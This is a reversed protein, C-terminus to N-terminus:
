GRRWAEREMASASQEVAMPLTDELPSPRGVLRSFDGELGRLRAILAVRIAKIKMAPTAGPNAAPADGVTVKEVGPFRFLRTVSNSLTSTAGGSPDISNDSALNLRGLSPQTKRDAVRLPGPVSRM